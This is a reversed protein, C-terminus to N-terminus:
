IVEVVTKPVASEYVFFPEIDICGNYGNEYNQVEFYLKNKKYYGNANQLYKKGKVRKEVPKVLRLQLHVHAGPMNPLAKKKEELSVKKGNSAVNGTNGETGLPTGREVVQGESVYIKDCHGCSLEYFIGNDEILTYVARYKMLDKNDKNAISFVEGAHSAYITKDGMAVLDFAGHGKRGAEAYYTNANEAYKQTIFWKKYPSYIKM